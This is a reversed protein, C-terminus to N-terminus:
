LNSRALTALAQGFSIATDNSPYHTPFHIRFGNRALLSAIKECLLKNAFVGGSAFIDYSNDPAHTQAIVLAIHSLTNFFKAIIHRTPLNHTIDECLARIIGRLAIRMSDAWVIPYHETIRTHCLSELTAGCQGDYTTNHCVGLLYAVGDFLRGVSSTRPANLKKTHMLRMTQLEHTSFDRAVLGLHEPAFELLLALAIRRIDTIAKEGGLLCFTEISAVRRAEYLNGVFAEGGWIHGDSGLGTGDWIIGLHATDKAFHGYEGLVACFHAYHHQIRCLNADQSYLESAIPATTTDSHHTSERAIHAAITSSAYQPHMDCAYLTFDRAQLGFFGLLAHFTDTFHQQTLPHSLDGIYPSILTHIGDSLCFSAKQNAGFALIKTPAFVHPLKHTKPAFGRALRLIRPKGAIFRVISDDIRHTIARNYSLLTDHIQRPSDILEKANKAIPAGSQNASTFILPVGLRECVLHMIGSYPLMVGITDLEPAILHLSTASLASDARLHKRKYLLVIPAQPSTLLTSQAPSCHAFSQIQALNACLIAFPKYPRNKRKRLTQIVHPMDARAVFAYGGIGKIAVIEGRQLARIAAELAANAYASHEFDFTIGCVNCSIPQAHFRRNTPDHYDHACSQCFRFARMASNAREYPLTYLMSYRAGCQTCACFAYQAFRGTSQMDAYCEPCMAMDLPVELALPTLSTDATSHSRTDTTHLICFEEHTTHPTYTEHTISTIKAPKPVRRLRALFHTLQQHTIDYLCIEVCSTTNCVSGKLGLSHALNYVFPRFGVGQIIGFVKIRYSKM